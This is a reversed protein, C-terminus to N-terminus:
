QRLPAPAPARGPTPKRRPCRRLRGSGGGGVARDHPQRATRVHQHRGMHAPGTKFRLLLEQILQALNQFTKHGAPPHGVLSIGRTGRRRAMQFHLAEAMFSYLAGTMAHIFGPAGCLFVRRAFFIRFFYLPPNFVLKLLSPEKGAAIRQQAKLRAYSIEKPLQADLRLGREHRLLGRKADRVDGEVVLGEHVLASTFRARGRRVLRLIPDPKVARPPPRTEGFLTLVRPLRWGAVAEPAQLLHPLEARLDSYLWEDADISLVWNQRAQELAFQKQRAYGALRTRHTRNSLRTRFIGRRHRPHPRHLPFRGGRDRRLRRSKALLAGICAEENRCIVTASLPLRGM